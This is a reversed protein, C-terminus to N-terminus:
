FERTPEKFVWTLFDALAQARTAVSSKLIRESSTHAAGGVAGLDDIAIIDAAALFSIDASGGLHAAKIERDELRRLIELYKALYPESKKSAALPSRGKKLVFEIKTPFKGNISRVNPNKLIREIEKEAKEMDNLARYRVEVTAEATGCVINTKESGGSMSGVNVTTGTQYNTLRSLALMKGSLEICANAGDEHNTGSHAERGKVSISYKAIGSRSKAIDGSALADEFGLAM